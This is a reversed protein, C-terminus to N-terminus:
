FQGHLNFGHNGCPFLPIFRSNSFREPYAKDHRVGVVHAVDIGIARQVVVVRVVTVPANARESPFQSQTLRFASFLFGDDFSPM